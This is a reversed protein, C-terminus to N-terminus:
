KTPPRSLSEKNGKKAREQHEAYSEPTYRQKTPTSKLEEFSSYGYIDLIAKNAYLLEGDKTIIRIGLPSEDLSNRFNETESDLVMQVREGELNRIISWKGEKSIIAVRHNSAADLIDVMDCKDLPYACIAIMRHSRIAEDVEGEYRMFDGWDGRELWSMNGALRLGDFGKELAAKEKEVWGQLVEDSNFKGSRTYWETYDLIEIQGKRIYDDLNGVEKSLAEKAEEVQLPESTIWMCFDNNELGAKFYPVLIDILDKKTQYFHCLHTGWPIYGAFDIGSHRLDREMKGECGLERM